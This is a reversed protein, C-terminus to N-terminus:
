VISLRKSAKTNHFLKISIIQIHRVRLETKDVNKTYGLPFFINACGEFGRITVSNSFRTRKGGAAYCNLFGALKSSM